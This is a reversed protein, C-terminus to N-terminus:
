EVYAGESPSAEAQVPHDRLLRVFMTLGVAIAIAGSVGFAVHWGHHSVKAYVSLAEGVLPSLAFLAGYVYLRTFDLFYAAVSFGILMIVSFRAMHVWGPLNAFDLTSVLGLIAAVVFFAAM